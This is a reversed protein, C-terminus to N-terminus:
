LTPPFRDPIGDGDLDEGSNSNDGSYMDLLYAEYSGPEVNYEEYVSVATKNEKPQEPIETQIDLPQEVVPTDNNDISAFIIISLILVFIIVLPLIYKKM